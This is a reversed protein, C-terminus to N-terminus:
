IIMGSLKRRLRNIELMDNLKTKKLTILTLYDDMEKVCATLKRM